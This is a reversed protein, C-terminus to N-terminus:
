VKAFYRGSERDAVVNQRGALCQEGEKRSFQEISTWDASVPLVQAHM